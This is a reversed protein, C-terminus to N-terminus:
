RKQIISVVECSVLMDWISVKKGVIVVFPYGIRTAEYLRKGVTLHTRDDIVVEGRMNPLEGLRDSLSDAMNRFKEAM